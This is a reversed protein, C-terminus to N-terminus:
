KHGLFGELYITEYYGNANAQLDALLDELNDHDSRHARKGGSLNIEWTQYMNKTKKIILGTDM